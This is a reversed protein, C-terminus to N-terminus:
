GGYQSANQQLLQNAQAVADDLAQKPSKKGEVAENVATTITAEANTVGASVPEYHAYPLEELFPKLNPYTEVLKPDNRVTNQAPLEGTAAWGSSHDNMWKVFTAAASTKNKDQGKNNPFIWHTSSSWVAKQTGIQPVPAAAWKV